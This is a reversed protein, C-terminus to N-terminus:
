DKDTEEKTTEHELQIGSIQIGLYDADGMVCKMCNDCQKTPDLDCTDDDSENASSVPYKPEAM